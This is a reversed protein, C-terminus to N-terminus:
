SRGEQELQVHNRVFLLSNKDVFPVFYHYLICSDDVSSAPFQPCQARGATFPFHFIM